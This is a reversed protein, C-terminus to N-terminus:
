EEVSPVTVQPVAETYPVEIPRSSPSSRLLYLALYDVPNAPRVRCVDELGQTLVSMVSQELYEQAPVEAPLPDSVAAQPTEEVLPAAAATPAADAAAAQRPETSAAMTALYVVLSGISGSKAFSPICFFQLSFWHSRCSKEM